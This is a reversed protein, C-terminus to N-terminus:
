CGAVFFYFLYCFFLSLHVSLMKVFGIILFLGCPVSKQQIPLSNQCSLKCFFEISLEVMLSSGIIFFYYIIIVINVSYRSAVKIKINSFCIKIINENPFSNVRENKSWMITLNNQRM